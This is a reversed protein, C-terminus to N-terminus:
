LKQKIACNELASSIASNIRDYKELLVVIFELSFRDARLNTNHRKFYNTERIKYFLSSAYSFYRFTILM